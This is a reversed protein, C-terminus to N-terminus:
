SPDFRFRTAAAGIAKFLRRGRESVPNPLEMVRWRSPYFVFPVYLIRYRRSLDATCEAASRMENQTFEFEFADDLNSKVEYRWETEVTQVRFDFGLRDDGEWDIELLGRNESVWCRDDYRGKHKESLFRSALYESAFGMASKVNESVREPQRRKGGKGGTGGGRGQEAQEALNFRSRSRKLWTGDLMQADALAVLDGAFDKAKTDLPSSAFTITRRAVEAQERREKEREKEGLLDEPDLGVELPDATQLMGEPWVGALVLTAIERGASIPAFDLLGRLDVTRLVAITFRAPDVPPTPNHTV